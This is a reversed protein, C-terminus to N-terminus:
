HAAARAFSAALRVLELDEPLGLASEARRLALRAHYRAAEAMVGDGMTTLAHLAKQLRLGVEVMGAGDRAITTFADDFLDHTALRPVAVRDYKPGANRTEDAPRSWEHFIRVFAALIQIATGPDNIGPSLARGAIEAMVIVGFRPDDTFMRNRGLQFAAVVDDEDASSPPRGDRRVLALPRDPTALTGCPAVVVVRANARTAWEQLAAVDVHQVYGVCPAHVPQGRHDDATVETGSLTPASRRRSLAATTAKEVTDITTGVRGLRAIRDVWRVFTVIVVAFVASTLIFLTFRGAISYYGNKLAVLAVISFIFAGIFTSLANKSIDDAVILSFSRPTASNGASAYAAVMSGVAFTAIVLMSSAMISLLSEVSDSSLVPVDIELRDALRAAFAAGISLVCIVLPRIWLLGSLRGFLFRLRDFSM